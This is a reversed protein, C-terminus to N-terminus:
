EVIDITIGSSTRTRHVGPNASTVPSPTIPNSVAGVLFPRDPDGGLFGVAVEVGPKLPFHTGYGDGAHPQLMRVPRTPPPTGAPTPDFFFRVLYRGQEDLHAHRGEAGQAGEVFGTVLGAIRPRPTLRAPRFTREAPIARFANRYGPAAASSAGAVAVTADHDVETVLLDVPGLEPHGELRMRLGAGLTPLASRGEYVLSGALEEEARVKAIAIAEAPTKHHTALEVRGGLTAGDLTHEGTLDVLPTRYNYDRVAHYGRVVAHRAALAFVDLSEGRPRYRAVEGDIWGFGAPHDTAVLKASAEGHEFFLSVGLHEAWRSVFALDTEAYEVVLERKPYEASLRLEFDAELGIAALKACWIEPLTRAVFLDTTEVMALAHARPVVRLALGRVDEHADLDDVVDLVMGHLRRVGVWGAGEAPAREIVITVPAGLIAAIPPADRDLAVVDVLYEFPRGIAERGRLRRVRLREGDFAESELSLTLEDLKSM